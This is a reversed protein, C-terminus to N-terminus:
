RGGGGVRTDQAGVGGRRARLRRPGLGRGPAPKRLGSAGRGRWGGPGAGRGRGESGAGSWSERLEAAPHAPRAPGPPAPPPSKQCKRPATFARIKPEFAPFTPSPATASGRGKRTRRQPRAAACVHGLPALPVRAPDHLLPLVPGVHVVPVPAAPCPCPGPGRRGPRRGGSGAPRPPPPSGRRAGPARHGPHLPPRTDRPAERAM